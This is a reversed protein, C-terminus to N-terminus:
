NVQRIAALFEDAAVFDTFRVAERGTSDLVVVTPLGVIRYQQMAAVVEPAEDDTADVKVAIFRGAERSVAEDAFTRKDLEKCAVCWNATFDVLLPRAQALAKQRASEASTAEWSLTRDPTLLGMVFAFGAASTLLVGLGKRLKVTIRPDSFEKHLAGLAVGLLAVGACAVLFTAGPRGIKALAPVAGSLFYAAAVLLIIGFASKVHVMWAGSRPLQVALAGVLFFPVGLGLSFAGMALGGLAPDKTQAIWALIGTLVPGTCPAAIPGCILGLVFAGKFGLGGMEALKNNLAAPLALDFAGFMSVAMASFLVALGVLVWANNLVEGAFGGGLGVAVGMPTFFAAIGLVYTASLLAGRRRSTRGGGGFVSVTVAVMPYVCPTLSVGLGGVFAALGAYLPGRSLAATFADPESAVGVSPWLLVALLFYLALLLPAQRVFPRMPPQRPCSVM